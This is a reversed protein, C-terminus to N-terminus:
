REGERARAWLVLEIQQGKSYNFGEMTAHEALDYSARVKEYTDVTSLVLGNPNSGVWGGLSAADIREIRARTEFVLSDEHFGVAAVPRVGEPDAQAIARAARPSIWWARNAPLGVGLFSIALAVPVGIAVVQARQLRGITAFRAALVLMVQGGALCLVILALQVASLVPAPEALLLLAHPGYLVAHGILLWIVLGVRGARRGDSGESARVVAWASLLAIAPYLPMTYHPLKTSVIEFVLWSPIAWAACFLSARALDGPAARLALLRGIRGRGESRDDGPGELSRKCAEIIARATLLSGPWLLVALLVLHYGPPGWHGEKAGGARGITEEYILSLYNGFGVQEAVAYVWPGVALVVIGVGVLPRTRLLWRWRRTALSLAVACLGCVMPTIPGKTMVGMALCVWLAIAWGWGVREGGASRTWIVWLCGMAGTTLAVLVQDSRAQHAEWVFVPSVAIFAAGLLAARGCGFLSRGLLWTIVVTAIGALLSPLRYMWIADRSPDGGTLVGASGAQLWYILPPKNLRPEGQV